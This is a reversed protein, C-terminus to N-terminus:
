WIEADFLRKIYVQKKVSPYVQAMCSSVDEQMDVPLVNFKESLGELPQITQKM